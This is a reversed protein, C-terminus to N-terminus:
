LPKRFVRHNKYPIGGLNILDARMTSATEAVQTMEGHKFNYGTITALMEAYMLANGGRGQFEPLIGAGNLSIWPTRRMELLMDVLGFPLLRGRSRQIAPSIDAFGFLFGVVEEGHVIVKILKPDAVTMINDVVFKIERETLPYYEWNNVFAKNYAEGIRGAWSLLHRKDKFRQVRLIGREEVRRAISRVREPLQFTQTNVYCSVFDVEKQFGLAELMPPYYAPNYNMMTMMQRHEFGEVLMGYGDLAGLGKPGILTDLSRDRAWDFARSFLAEAVAPDEVSEFFYFQAQRSDHYQNFTQNEFVAIRGVDEGGSHAIFFEGQSHEYFPHKQKDLQAEHDIRIPPVWQPTNKYLRFPLRTFRKVQAKSSTDIVDINIM